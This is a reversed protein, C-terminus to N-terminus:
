RDTLMDCVDHVGPTQWAHDVAVWRARASDLRGELIVVRNQVQVRVSRLCTWPDDHLRETVLRALREDTSEAPASRSWSWPLGDKHYPMPFWM